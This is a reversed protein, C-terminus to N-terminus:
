VVTSNCERRQEYIRPWTPEGIQQVFAEVGELIRSGPEVECLNPRTFVVNELSTKRKGRCSPCLIRCTKNIHSAENENIRPLSDIGM